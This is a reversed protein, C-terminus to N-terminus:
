TCRANPTSQWVGCTPHRVCLRRIGLSLRRAGPQWVDPAPNGATPRRNGSTSGAAVLRCVGLGRSSSPMPRRVGSELQRVSDTPLQVDSSLRRGSSTPHRGDSVPHRTALRRGNYAGTSLIMRSLNNSYIDFKVLFSLKGLAVLISGFLHNHSLDIVVVAFPGKFSTPIVWLHRWQNRILFTYPRKFVVISCHPMRWITKFDDDKIILEGKHNLRLFCQEGNGHTNSQWGYKGGYLVLNCDGQMVLQHNKATLRGNGYLVQGSFLLNNTFPINRFRLSNLSPVSPDIKFVSPGFVVLRGEPQIVAAYDGKVSKAGSRWVSSRYDGNNIVFEGGRTTGPFRNFLDIQVYICWDTCRSDSVYFLTADKYCDNYLFLGFRRCDCLRFRFHFGVPHAAGDTAMSIMAAM